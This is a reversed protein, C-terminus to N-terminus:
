QKILQSAYMCVRHQIYSVSLTNEKYTIKVFVPEQTNRYNINCSGLMHKRPDNKEAFNKTGDNMLAITM